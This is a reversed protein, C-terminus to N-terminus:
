NDTQWTFDSPPQSFWDKYAQEQVPQLAPPLPAQIEEAM